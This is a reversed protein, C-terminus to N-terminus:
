DHFGRAVGLGWAIWALLIVTPVVLSVSVLIALNQYWAFRVAFFAFYLLLFVLGGIGLSVTLVIRRFLSRVIGNGPASPGYHFANGSM